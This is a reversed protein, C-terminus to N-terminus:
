EMSLADRFAISHSTRALHAQKTPFKQNLTPSNFQDLRVVEGGGNSGVPRGASKKRNRRKKTADKERVEIVTTKGKAIRILEDARTQSYDFHKRVFAPWTTGKPKRQKLEALAHGLKIFYQEAKDSAAEAKIALPGTSCRGHSV